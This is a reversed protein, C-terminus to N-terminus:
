SPLKEAPQNRAMDEESRHNQRSMSQLVPHAHRSSRLPALYQQMTNTLAFETGHDVRIQEWLGESLLLPRLLLNYVAISNKVPITILGVIKRSYGDIALVHTVGYMSLKENQDIHLKEGHYRACYPLPNLMRYTDQRRAQHQIPAVRRMSSSLRTQSVHIGESRLLGQMTRRGYAHGVRRIYTAVACDLDRHSLSHRM